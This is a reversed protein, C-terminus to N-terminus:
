EQRAGDSGTPDTSRLFLTAVLGGAPHNGLQITGGSLDAQAKAVTLGVGSGRVSARTEPARYFPEFLRADEPDKLGPGHDRVAIAVGGDAVRCGIEVAAGYKVGNDILNTLARALANPRVRASLGCGQVFRVDAGVEAADDALSAVLSDLDVVSWAERTQHSSALDLGERVLRQMVLVDDVLPDRLAPDSVQELRLRMRTLPTQLDHSIAALLQTRAAMGERLRAQMVNFTALAVRVETPGRVQVDPTELSLSLARAAETLHTLPRTVLRAVLVSLLGSALLLCALYIPSHRSWTVPTVYPPAFMAVWVRADGPPRFGVVWCDIRLGAARASDSRLTTDGIDAEPPVCSALDAVGARPDFAPGMVRALEADMEANPAFAPPTELLRTGLLRQVTARRAEPDPSAMWRSQVQHARAVIEAMRMANLGRIRASEVLVLSLLAAATVGLALLAFTRGSVSNLGPWLRRSRLRM